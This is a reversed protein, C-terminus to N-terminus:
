EGFGRYYKRELYRSVRGAYIVTYVTGARRSSYGENEDQYVVQM